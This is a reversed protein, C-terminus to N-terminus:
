TTYVLGAPEGIRAHSERVSANGAEWLESLVAYELGDGPLRPKRNM